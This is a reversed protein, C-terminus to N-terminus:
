MMPHLLLYKTRSNTFVVVIVFSVFLIVTIIVIVIIFNM